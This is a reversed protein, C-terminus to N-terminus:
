LIDLWYCFLGHNQFSCRSMIIFNLSNPLHNPRVVNPIFKWNVSWIYTFVRNFEFAKLLYNTYHAYLFPAGLILQWGACISLYQLTRFLGSSLLM